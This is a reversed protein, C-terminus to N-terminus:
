AAHRQTEQTDLTVQCDALVRRVLQSNLRHGSRYGVIRGCIDCGSLALDGILDLTKHRVCEDPFRLPNDIPGRLGFVLLDHCTVRRGLGQNQLWQAEEQLLFTRAGALQQRFSQPSVTLSYTQRGIPGPGYDLTYQIALGPQDAPRAEVWCDSDGIGITEAIVLVPRPAPQRVRGARTLVDVFPQSSGDCGPMEARNVWIQCNDIRLGAVAAMVHEVMEVTAGGANLNTRRPIEVRNAVRAPIECPRGLDSRVFVIGTDIEAPRFEVRVDQGSWYGFGEIEVPTAITHQHRIALKL